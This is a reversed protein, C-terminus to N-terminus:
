PNNLNVIPALKSATIPLTAGTFVGGIYIGGYFSLGAQVSTSGPNADLIVATNKNGGAGVIQFGGRGGFLGFGDGFDHGMSFISLTPAGQLFNGEGGNLLAQFNGGPVAALVYGTASSEGIMVSTQFGNILIEQGVSTGPVLYSAGQNNTLTLAPFSSSGSTNISAPSTYFKQGGISQGFNTITGALKDPAALVMSINVLGSGQLEQNLVNTVELGTTRDFQLTTTPQVFTGSGTSGYTGSGLGITTLVQPALATIQVETLGGSSRAGSVLSLGSGVTVLNVAPILTGSLDRWTQSVTKGTGDMGSVMQGSTISHQFDMFAGNWDSRVIRTTGTRLRDSYTYVIDHLGEPTWAVTGDYAKDLSALVTANWEDQALRMALADIQAINIPNSNPGVQVEGSYLAKAATRLMNISINGILGSVFTGGSLIPVNVQFMSGYSTENWATGRPTAGRTNYFHPVPDTKSGSTGLIYQPFGVTITNPLVANKAFTLDGAPTSFGSQFIDGGAVGITDYVTRNTQAIAFSEEARLLNYIGNFGRVVIRGLNAAIADLLTASNAVNSWLPSDTEPAGYVSEIPTPINVVINLTTAITAILTLWTSADPIIPALTTPTNFLWREDALTILYLGDFEGGLVEGLPRPPMLLMNTNLTFASPAGKPQVQMTFVNPLNGANALMQSAMTSSALGRFVSWRSAGYPYYWQGLRFETNHDKATPVYSALGRLNPEPVGDPVFENLIEFPLLRDIEEYLGTNSRLHALIKELEPDEEFLFEEAKDSLFPVGAYQLNYNFDAM